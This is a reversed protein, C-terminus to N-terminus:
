QLFLPFALYCAPPRVTERPASRGAPSNCRCHPAEVARFLGRRPYGRFHRHCAHRAAPRIDQGVGDSEGRACGQCLGGCLFADKGHELADVAAAGVARGPRPSFVGTRRLPTTRVRPARRGRARVIAARDSDPEFRARQLVRPPRPPHQVGGLSRPEYRTGGDRRARAQGGGRANRLIHWHRHAGGTPGQPCARRAGRLRPAAGVPANHNLPSLTRAVMYAAGCPSSETNQRVGERARCKDCAAHEHLELQIRGGTDDPVSGEAM